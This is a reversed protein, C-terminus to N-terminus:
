RSGGGSVAAWRERLEAFFADQQEPRRV